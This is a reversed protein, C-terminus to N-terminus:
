HRLSCLQLAPDEDAAALAFQKEVDFFAFLTPIFSTSSFVAVTVIHDFLAPRRQRVTTCLLRRSCATFKLLNCVLNMMMMMMMM